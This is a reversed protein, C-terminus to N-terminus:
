CPRHPPCLRRGCDPPPPFPPAKPRFKKPVFPPIFSAEFAGSDCAPGQPRPVGRQDTAVPQGALDTCSIAADIAVSGSLLAHTPTTGPPNIQLPGLALQAPTVVTFDVCTSDTSFSGGANTVTGVCNARPNGAGDTTNAIISNLLRVVGAGATEVAGGAAAVVVSDAITVFSADVAGTTLIAAGSPTAAATARNGSLTVNVLTGQGGVFLAGGSAASNGVLASRQIEVVATSFIGGGNRATNGSLTSTSVMLSGANNIAGGTIGTSNQSLVSDTVTARSTATGNEIAGGTSSASNESLESRTVTLTGPNYIAGGRFFATNGSLISDAVSATGDNRIAGGRSATNGTLVSDRVSVTGLNYIAAGDTANGASLTLGQVTLDGSVAISFIGVTGGGSVTLAAAGPGDITLGDTVTPLPSLLTITGTIAFTITDPGPNAIADLMAQRLSGPGSDGLSTVVFNM